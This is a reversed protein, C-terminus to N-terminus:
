KPFAYRDLCHDILREAMRTTARLSKASTAQKIMQLCETIIKEANPPISGLDPYKSQLFKVLRAVENECVEDNPQEPFATQISWLCIQYCPLLSEKYQRRAEEPIANAM